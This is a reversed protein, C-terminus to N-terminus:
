SCRLNANHKRSAPASIHDAVADWHEFDKSPSSTTTLKPDIAALFNAVHEKCHTDSACLSPGYKATTMLMSDLIM